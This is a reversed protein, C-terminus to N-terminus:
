PMGLAKRMNDALSSAFSATLHQNDRFVILDGSIANCRQGPCVADNLDVLATNLLSDVARQLGKIASLRRKDDAPSSCTDKSAAQLRAVGGHEMLCTVGNFGLAYTPAIIAIRKASTIQEEVIRTTGETWQEETLDYTGASGILLLDPKLKNLYAAATKKWESCESYIRGIRRYFIPQDVIPCGSKTIVELRWEGSDLYLAQKIAPLWQLGISDGWVAAVKPAGRSGAHCAKLDASKYWDDCGLRYIEPKDTRAAILEPSTEAVIRDTATSHWNMLQVNILVIVVLSAVIQWKPSVRANQYQRIPNEVLRYTLHALLFATLVLAAQSYTTKETLLHQGVVLVPWHWLYLSYSIDGIYKLPGRALPTTATCRAGPSVALLCLSTALTPVLSIWDPYRTSEGILVASVLIAALGMALQISTVASSSPASRRALLWTIAGLGFQWIRAPMLYFAQVPNSHALWMCLALSLLSIALLLPLRYKSALTCILIVILPWLLYFQEEVGLSWTHLFANALSTSEFYNQEAFIFYFNSVWAAASAAASAQAPHEAVPTLAFIAAASVVLMLMLAPMLRKLRRAYFRSLSLEGEKEIETILLGTILYGSIVFFVDVGIFGGYLFPVGAHAALVLIIAVARLGQISPNYPLQKIHQSM